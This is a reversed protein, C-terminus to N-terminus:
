NKHQLFMVSMPRNRTEFRELMIKPLKRVKTCCRSMTGFYLVQGNHAANTETIISDSFRDIAEYNTVCIWFEHPSYYLWRNPFYLSVCIMLDCQRM